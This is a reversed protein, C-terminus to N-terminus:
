GEGEGRGETVLTWERRAWETKRGRKAKEWKSPKMFLGWECNYRCGRERFIYHDRFQLYSYCMWRYNQPLLIHRLVAWFCNQTCHLRHSRLQLGKPSGSVMNDPHTASFHFSLLLSPETKLSSLPFVHVSQEVGADQLMGWTSNTRHPSCMSDTTWVTM